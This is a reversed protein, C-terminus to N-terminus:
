CNRFENELELKIEEYESPRWVKGGTIDLWANQEPSTKGTESKLERFLVRPIGDVKKALVLDPFGFGDAGVPTRWGKKTEAPRFHAVTWGLAHALDIILTQFDAETMHYEQKKGM